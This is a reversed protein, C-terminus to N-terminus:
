EESKELLKKEYKEFNLVYGNLSFVYGGDILQNLYENATSRSVNYETAFRAVLMKRDWEEGHKHVYGLMWRVRQARARMNASAETSLNDVFQDLESQVKM